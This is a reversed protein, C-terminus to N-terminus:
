DGVTVTAAGLTIAGGHTTADGVRASGLGGIKVTSSGVAIANPVGPAGTCVGADGIRVAALGEILVTPEGPGTLAGGAHPAPSQAACVHLDSVRAAPRGM